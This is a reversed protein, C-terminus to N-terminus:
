DRRPEEDEDEDDEDDDDDIDSEDDENPSEFRFRRGSESWADPGPASKRRPGASRDGLALRRAWSNIALVIWFGIVILTALLIIRWEM